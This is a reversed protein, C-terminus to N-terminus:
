VKEIGIDLRFEEVFSNGKDFLEERVEWDGRDFPSEIVRVRISGNPECVARVCVHVGSVVVPRVEESDPNVTLTWACTLRLNEEGASVLGASGLDPIGAELVSEEFFVGFEVWLLDGRDLAEPSSM